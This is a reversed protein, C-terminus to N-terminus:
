GALSSGPETSELSKVLEQFRPLYFGRNDRTMVDTYLAALQDFDPRGVLKAVIIGTSCRFWALARHRTPESPRDNLEADIAALSGWRDFYPLAFERFVGAVKQSLAVVERESALRFECSRSDGTLFIGISNGMTPTDKQYKAEFGSTLHFISEVRELRVAVNPQVRYGPKEDLCVLQFMDTLDGRRRVFTDKARKLSFGQNTLEPSLLNFLSAKL